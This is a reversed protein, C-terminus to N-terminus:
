IHILSLYFVRDGPIQGFYDTTAVKGDVHDHYPIVITTNPSPTFMDLNWLCPAGTQATWVILGTNTISNNTKFGVAKITSGLHINLAKEIDAQELVSIGRDIRMNLKTGRYNALSMVKTLLVQKGNKNTITWSEHDIPAPTHWNAFDMKVGKKFFLAFQGGEPGLWLRDEGGYANMHPDFPASFAKYNIWGFSKGREGDATSTFVKGQYKASVVVQSRDNNGTLVVVDDKQKLFNLDYGFTGEKFNDAKNYNKSTKPKCSYLVSLGIILIHRSKLSIM